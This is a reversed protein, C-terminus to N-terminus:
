WVVGMPNDLMVLSSAKVSESRLILMPVDCLLLIAEGGRRRRTPTEVFIYKEAARVLSYTAERTSCRDWAEWAEEEGEFRKESISMKMMGSWRVRAEVTM